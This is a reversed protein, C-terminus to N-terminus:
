NAAPLSQYKQYQDSTLVAQLKTNLEKANTKSTSANGTKKADIEAQAYNLFINHVKKSQEQTLKLKSAYNHTMRQAMEQASPQSAATNANQAGSNRAAQAFTKNVALLLVLMLFPFFKRKM